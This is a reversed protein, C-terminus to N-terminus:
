IKFLPTSNVTIGCFDRPQAFYNEPQYVGCETARRLLFIFNSSFEDNHGYSTSMVHGLEHIAVFMILNIDHHRKTTKDRLCLHLEQGKEVTYSTASDTLATERINDPNFRDKLLRVNPYDSYQSACFDILRRLRHKIETILEASQHKNPADALWITKNALVGNKDPSLVTTKVLGSTKYLHFCLLLILVICILLVVNFIM